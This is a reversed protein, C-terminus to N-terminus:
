GGSCRPGDGRCAISGVGVEDRLDSGGAAPSDLERRLPQMPDAGLLRLGLRPQDKASAYRTVRSEILESIRAHVEAVTAEKKKKGGGAYFVSKNAKAAAQFAKAANEQPREDVLKLLRSAGASGLLHALYLEGKGVKGKREQALRDQTKKVLEGAMLASLYPDERLSLIWRRNEPVTVTPRGAVVTIADAAATFGHKAAHENLVELWTGELFQYLGVASSTPAKVRPSFTSEKDALALMYTADVGTVQAARTITDALWRPVRTEGFVVVEKLNDAYNPEFSEASSLGTGAALLAAALAAIAMKHKTM